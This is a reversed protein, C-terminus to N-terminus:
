HLAPGPVQHLDEMLAMQQEPQGICVYVSNRTVLVVYEGLEYFAGISSTHIEHGDSFRGTEPNRRVHDYVHGWCVERAVYTDLLLGTVPFPFSTERAKKLAQKESRSLCDKM